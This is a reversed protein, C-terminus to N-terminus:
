SCSRARRCRGDDGNEIRLFEGITRPATAAPGADVDAAYAGPVWACLASLVLLLGFKFHTM